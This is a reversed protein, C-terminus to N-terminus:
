KLMITRVRRGQYYAVIYCQKYRPKMVRYYFEKVDDFRLYNGILYRFTGEEQYVEYGKLHEYYSTDIPILKKLEYFQVRFVTDETIPISLKPVPGDSRQMNREDFPNFKNNLPANTLQTSEEVNEVIIESLNYQIEDSARGLMKRIEMTNTLMKRREDFPLNNFLSNDEVAAVPLVFLRRRASITDYYNWLPIFGYDGIHTEGSFNNKKLEIDMLVGAKTRDDTASSVLNGLSYCVLGQREQQRYYYNMLDIRQVTNPFTGVVMSAGQELIWRALSEQSYSPYEQYNGGWDMYVIIFDPEQARAIRMDREILNQDVQNILYDRSIGPRQSMSSYNLLAVKFGKRNIILPYNGNRAINDTFSGTTNIDFVELAKKTRVMSKKDLYATNQNAMVCNNIGSYKLSLAFEDPASFPNSGDSTFSTKMNAIVIDGLNLIPNVYRLEHGFDFKKQAPLYANRIQDETQYINGGIVLHLTRFSDVTAPADLADYDVPRVHVNNGTQALLLGQLSLFVFLLGFRMRTM